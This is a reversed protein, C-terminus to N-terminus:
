IINNGNIKESLLNAASDSEDFYLATTRTNRYLKMIENKMALKNEDSFNGLPDYMLVLEPSLAFIRGLEAKFLQEVSLAPPKEDLYSEFDFLKAAETIKKNIKDKDAGIRNLSFLLNRYISMHTYLTSKKFILGINRESAHVDAVSRGGIIIEGRRVAELGSIMRFLSRGADPNKVTLIFMTEKSVTFNFIEPKDRSGNETVLNKIILEAM